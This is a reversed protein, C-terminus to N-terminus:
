FFRRNRLMLPHTRKHESAEFRGRVEEVLDLPVGMQAAVKEGSMELDFLGHLILDLVEYDAPLEDAARHGKWLQPSPPKDIIRKPLGLHAALLRVQTKYLHAIPLFDVGGDGYKTFYGILIESRDGTGAVLYGLANAFFYNTVMRARARVNGVTVRDGVEIPMAELFPDVFSNIPILHTTVGLKEALTRADEVDETPTISPDPMILGLVGERGLARVCLDFVVSSDLGGSMGVVVGGAEADEVIKRIFDLIEVKVRQCDIKLADKNLKAKKSGKQM